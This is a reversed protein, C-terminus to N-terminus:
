EKGRVNALTAEYEAITGTPQALAADIAATIVRQAAEYGREWQNEPVAGSDLGESAPLRAKVLVTQLREARQEAQEKAAIATALSEQLDCRQKDVRNYIACLEKARENAAALERKLRAIEKEDPTDYDPVMGAGVNTDGNYDTM